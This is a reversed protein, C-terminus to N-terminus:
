KKLLKREEILFPSGNIEPMEKLYFVEIVGRAQDPMFFEESLKWRTERFNSHTVFIKDEYIIRACAQSPYMFSDPLFQCLQDLSEELPTNQLLDGARNIGSLEKLREGNEHLLNQLRSKSIEGVVLSLSLTIKEDVAWSESSLISTFYLELVLESGWPTEKRFRCCHDTKSFKASVFEENEFLMRASWCETESVYADCVKPLMAGIGLGEDAIEAIHELIYKGGDM